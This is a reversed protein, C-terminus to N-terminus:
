EDTSRRIRYQALVEVALLAVLVVGRILVAMAIPVGSTIQMALSGNVLAGMVIAALIVGLPHLRGLLAVIIGTFGYGTSIDLRLRGHLGTLEGAGALGAIAGSIALILIITRFTKIGKYKAALANNGYARIEYGLTTKWLLYWVVLAVVLALGLGLHIRTGPILRSFIAAEPIKATQLYPSAPDQWYDASSLLFSLIFHIVFNMMVTVIVVNAGYRANLWAAIGGWVAGALAGALFVAIAMPVPPLSSVASAMWYAAMAGAFFQGEAGINWLRGRFAVTVALGTLILPTAQVLTEAIASASGLSGRYLAVFAEGVNAGSSAILVASIGFAIILAFVVSLTQWVPSVVLRKELRYGLFTTM